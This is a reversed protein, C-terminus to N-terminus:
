KFSHMLKTIAMGIFERLECMKSAGETEFKIKNIKSSSKCVVGITNQDVVAESCSLSQGNSFPKMLSLKLVFDPSNLTQKCSYKLENCFNSAASHFHLLYFNASMKVAFSLTFKITCTVYNM